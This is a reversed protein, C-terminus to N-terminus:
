GWSLTRVSRKWVIPSLAFGIDRMSFQSDGAPKNALGACAPEVCIMLNILFRVSDFHREILLSKQLIAPEDVLPSRVQM